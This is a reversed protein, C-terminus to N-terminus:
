CHCSAGGGAVRVIGVADCTSESLHSFFRFHQMDAFLLYVCLVMVDQLRAAVLCHSMAGHLGIVDVIGVVVVFECSGLLDRRSDSFRWVVSQFFLLQLSRLSTM